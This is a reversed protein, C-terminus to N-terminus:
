LAKGEPCVAAEVANKAVSAKTLQRTPAPNKSTGSNIANERM